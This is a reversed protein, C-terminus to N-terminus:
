PKPNLLVLGQTLGLAFPVQPPTFRVQGDSFLFNGGRKEHNNGPAKGTTSFAVQGAERPGTDVQRDSMLPVFTDSSRQGMYYAYSIRLPRISEGPPIPADKSGPCIFVPTDVTYHPVLLDLPEESSRAGTVVPYKENHENAYITMAVYIKELNSLCSHQEERRRGNAGSGWYLTFLILILALVVLLEIRSFGRAPQQFGRVLSGTKPFLAGRDVDTSCRLSTPGRMM